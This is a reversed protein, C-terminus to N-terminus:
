YTLQTIVGLIELMNRRKKGGQRNKIKVGKGDTSKERGM